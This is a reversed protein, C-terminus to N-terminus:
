DIADADATPDGALDILISQSAEYCNGDATTYRVFVVLREHEPRATPWRLHLQIGEGRATKAFRPAIQDETFDWRAVRAADGSLAPDIIVVSVAGARNVLRDREDRPEIVVIVGEDGLRRDANYGGTLRRNLVIKAIRSESAAGQPPPGDKEVTETTEGIEGIPTEFTARRVGRTSKWSSRDAPSSASPPGGPIEIVPPVGQAPPLGSDPRPTRGPEIDTPAPPMAPIIERPMPAGARAQELERKLTANERRTSELLKERTAVEDQLRYLEDEQLRLEREVLERNVDTHRCGMSFSLAIAVIVAAKDLKSIHRRM